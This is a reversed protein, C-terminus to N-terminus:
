PLPKFVPPPLSLPSQPLDGSLLYRAIAEAGREGGFLQEHSANEIERHVANPLTVLSEIANETPTFGDLSGTLILMPTESILPERGSAGIDRAGVAGAVAPFPFNAANSLPSLGAEQRMREERGPSAGSAGDCSYFTLSRLFSSTYAAAAKQLSGFEGRALSDVLEPLRVFRVALGVWGSVMHQLAFAGFRMPRNLLNMEPFPWDKLAEALRDVLADENGTSAFSIKKLQALTRAPLKFTQDPGEFGCLVARCVRHNREKLVFQALHTGYSHGWLCIEPANLEDALHLVDRASELVNLYPTEPRESAALEAQRLVFQLMSGETEFLDAPIDNPWPVSVNLANGSGGRQELLLLDQHEAVKQFARLNPGFEAYGRASDGPGGALFVVPPGSPARAPVRTVRLTLRTESEGFHSVPVDFEAFEAEALTGDKSRLEGRRWEL